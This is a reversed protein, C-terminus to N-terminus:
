PRALVAVAASAATTDLPWTTISPEGRLPQLGWLRVTGDWSGSALLDAGVFGLSGAREAHGRLTALLTGDAPRWVLVRGDLHGSALLADDASMELRLLRPADAQWTATRAGAPDALWVTTQDAFAVRATGCAVAVSGPAAAIPVARPSAGDDLRWLQGRGGTMMATAGGACTAGDLFGPGQIEVNRGGGAPEIRLSQIGTLSWMAGSRLLGVRRGDHRHSSPLDRRDPWTWQRVGPSGTCMVAMRSGAQDFAVHKVAGACAEAQWLQRGDGSRWAELSGTGRGVVLTGGDPSVGLASVGAGSGVVVPRATPPLQWRRRERGLGLLGGDDGFRLAAEGLGPVRALNAGDDLRRVSGGGDGSHLAVLAGHGAWPSSIAVGDVDRVDLRGIVRTAGTPLDVAELQGDLGAIVLTGDDSLEAAAVGRAAVGLAAYRPPAGDIWVSVGRQAEGTPCVAAAFRGSASVATASISGGDRCVLTALVAPRELSFVAAEIRSHGIAVDADSIALAAAVSVPLSGLLRGDDTAHVDVRKMDRAVVMHRRRAGIAASLVTGRLSRPAADATSWRWGEAEVCIWGAGHRDVIPRECPAWPQAPGASPAPSAAFAALVGRAGAITARTGPDASNAAPSPGLPVMSARALVEAEARAGRLAALQAQEGQLKALSTAAVTAAQQAAREATTARDRQSVTARWGVLIAVLTLLSALGVAVIPGRFAGWFRAALEMPTYDHAVVRRGSLFADLDSAFAVADAYREDPRLACARTVIALLDAPAGACLRQSAALLASASADAATTPEDGRADRVRAVETVSLPTRGALVEFLTAGLSYVDARADAPAGGGVEPAIYGRTGVVGATRADALTAALGWDAVQTEGLEGILLNAPKLDRHVVGVRHAFAVARAADLVHRVLGLRADPDAADTIADALSRGRVVRMVYFPTGDDRRGADYVPVVAAHELLATLRAEALLKETASGGLVPFKVAVHRGLLQDEAMVVEGMGGRGLVSLVLYRRAPDVFEGPRPSRDGSPPADHGVWSAQSLAPASLPLEDDM